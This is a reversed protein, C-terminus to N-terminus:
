NILEIHPLDHWSQDFLDNDSDWDAGMRIRIGLDEASRQVYGLFMYFAGMKRLYEEPTDTKPNPWIQGGMEPIYPVVDVAISLVPAVANHKSHPWRVKTVGDRFYKDQTAKDRRGEIIACDRTKIVELMLRRLAPHCTELKKLSKQSFNAM